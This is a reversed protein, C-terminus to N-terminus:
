KTEVTGDTLITYIYNGNEDEVHAGAFKVSECDALFEDCHAKAKALSPFDRSDCDMADEESGNPYTYCNATYVPQKGGAFASNGPLNRLLIKRTIKYDDGVLGLRILFVRFAFKMNENQKDKATVRKAEKAAKCLASIFWAWATFEDGEMITFWSFQLKREETAVEIPLDCDALKDGLAAKILGAKSDVLKRLNHLQEPTFGELPMEITIRDPTSEDAVEESANDQPIPLDYEATVPVFGHKSELDGVLVRYDTGTVTGVKDITFGGVEYAFTPAGLYNLPANQEQSIAAVLRKRDQGTVNYTIKMNM